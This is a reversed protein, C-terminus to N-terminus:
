RRWFLSKGGASTKAFSLANSAAQRWSPRRCVRVFGRWAYGVAEDFPQLAGNELLVPPHREPAAVEGVARGQLPGVVAEHAVVVRLPRVLPVAEATAGRGREEPAHRRRLSRM